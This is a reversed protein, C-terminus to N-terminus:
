QKSGQHTGTSRGNPYEWQIIKIYTRVLIQRENILVLGPTSSELFKLTRQLYDTRVGDPQFAQLEIKPGGGVFPCARSTGIV